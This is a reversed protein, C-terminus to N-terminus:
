EPVSEVCGENGAGTVVFENSVVSDVPYAVLDPDGNVTKATLHVIGPKNIQFNPFIALGDGNTEVFGNCPALTVGNNEAATIRVGVGEWPTGGAGTVLVQVPLATNTSGGTPQVVFSMVTNGPDVVGTPSFDGLTGSVPGKLVAGAFLPAPRIVDFLGELLRSAFTEAVAPQLTADPDCLAIPIVANEGPVPLITGGQGSPLHQVRLALDDFDNDICYSITALGNLAGSGVPRVMSWEYFVGADDESTFNVPEITYGIILAQGGVFTGFNGPAGLGAANNKSRVAIDTGAGVAYTGTGEVDLADEFAARALATNTGELDEDTYEVLSCAIVQITLEAGQAPDTSAWPGAGRKTEIAEFLQYAFPTVGTTNQNKSTFQKAIANAPDKSGFLASTAKRLDTLNCAPGVGAAQFAPAEPSTALQGAEGACAGLALAAGLAVALSPVRTM